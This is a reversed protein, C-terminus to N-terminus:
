VGDIINRQANNDGFNLKQELHAVYSRNINLIEGLIDTLEM